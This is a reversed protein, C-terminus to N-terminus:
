NELIEKEHAFAWLLFNLLSKYVDASLAILVDENADLADGLAEIMQIRDEFAKLKTYHIILPKALEGEVNKEM